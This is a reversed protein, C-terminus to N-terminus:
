FSCLLVIKAIIDLAIETQCLYSKICYLLVVFLCTNSRIFSLGLRQFFIALSFDDNKPWMTLFLCRFKNTFMMFPNIPPLFDFPLDRHIHISSMLSHAWILSYPCNFLFAYHLSCHLHIIPLRRMSSFAVSTFYFLNLVILKTLCSSVKM